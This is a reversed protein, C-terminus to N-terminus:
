RTPNHHRMCVTTYYQIKALYYKILVIAAANYYLSANLLLAAFQFQSHLEMAAVGKAHRQPHPHGYRVMTSPRAITLGLYKQVM